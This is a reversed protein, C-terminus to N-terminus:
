KKWRPCGAYNRKEIKYNKVKHKKAFDQITSEEDLFATKIINGTTDDVLALYAFPKRM